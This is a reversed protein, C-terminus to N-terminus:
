MSNFRVTVRSTHLPVIRATALGIFLTGTLDLSFFLLTRILIRNKTTGTNIAMRGTYIRVCAYVYM